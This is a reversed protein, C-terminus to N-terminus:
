IPAGRARDREVIRRVGRELRWLYEPLDQGAIPHGHIPAVWEIPNKEFLHRLTSMLKGPDVFRLWSVADTHFREIAEESIGEAFDRSTRTRHEPRHYSGFGDAVFLVRSLEDYIWSTHSRDALPPDLFRIPRGLVAERGGIHVRTAYPLGQIGPDGCSAVIEFDGWRQRLAGINGSHPYDSHSLILARVGDGGTVEQIAELITHRHHFSGSDIVIWGVASRLLYVAVHEHREPALAFSEAVWFVEQTLAVVRASDTSFGETM